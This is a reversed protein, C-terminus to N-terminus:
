PELVAERLDITMPSSPPAQIATSILHEGHTLTQFQWRAGDDDLRPEVELRIAGHAGFRFAFGDLALALGMGRAKIYSEKLTWLTLARHAQQETPLAALDSLESPAFVNPALKLLRPARSIRETDIGIEHEGSLLLAVLGETHTVNFRLPSPPSLEPRGWQNTTFAVSKGLITKLLVRTVLYEHRKLPPIFRQHQAREEPTLLALAAPTEPLTEPKVWWLQLM